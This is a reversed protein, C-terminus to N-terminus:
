SKAEPNLITTVARPLADVDCRTPIFRNLGYGNQKSHLRHTACMVEMWIGTVVVKDHTWMILPSKSIHGHLRFSSLELTISFFSRAHIQWLTFERDHLVNQNILM